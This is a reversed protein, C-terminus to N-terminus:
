DLEELERVLSDKTLSQLKKAHAKLDDLAVKDNEKQYMSALLMYHDKIDSGIRVGEELYAKALTTEDADHLGQAMLYLCRIYQNYNDELREITTLIATGFQLRLDTNSMHSFNVMQQELLHELQKQYRILGPKNLANYFVDEKFLGKDLKPHIYDEESLSKRRVSLSEREKEWFTKTVEDQRKSNKRMHHRFVFIAILFWVFLIPFSSM